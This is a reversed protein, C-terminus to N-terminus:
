VELSFLGTHWVSSNVEPEAIDRSQLCCYYVVLFLAQCGFFVNLQVVEQTDRRAKSLERRLFAAVDFGTFLLLTFMLNFFISTVSYFLETLLSLRELHINKSVQFSLFILANNQIYKRHYFNPFSLYQQLNEPDRFSSLTLIAAKPGKLFIVAILFELTKFVMLSRRLDLFYQNFKIEKRFTDLESPLGELVYNLRFYQGKKKKRRQHEPLQINIQIGQSTAQSQSTPEKEEETSSEDSYGELQCLLIVTTL